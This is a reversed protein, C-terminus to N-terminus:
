GGAGPPGTRRREARARVILVIMWVACIALGLAERAEEDSADRMKWATFASARADALAPLLSLMGALYLAAAAASPWLWFRGAAASLSLAAALGYLAIWLLPDPDNWQVFAALAFVVSMVAAVRRM